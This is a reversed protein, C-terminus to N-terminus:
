TKMLGQTWQRIMAVTGEKANAFQVGYAQNAESWVVQGTVEIVENGDPSQVRMTVVGGKELAQDVNFSLGGASITSTQGILERDGVKVRIESNMKFRDHKRRSAGEPRRLAFWVLLPIMMLGALLGAGSAGGGKGPGNMIATSVLGCGGAGGASAPSREALFRPIYDPQYSAATSMVKAQSILDVSSIRASTSVRGELLVIHESEQMVLQKMQYGTLYPAERLALAAMGAVFPAAMSTGSMWDFTNGRVTSKIWEGPSGVHVTRAGYNSFYSLKDNSDISAVAINSPVDYNAPYMPTADNDKSYNGAASVVLVSNNYAYILAEHLARSYSPGGWSNNIVRAGNRVAYEIARVANATTGSGGGNLFKLPMIVVKSEELSSAFINLGAGVVIGAVHTGHNDDDAFNNSNSIFNWGNIDDVFGNGDDDRYPQGNAEAQNVWLAGTGGSSVPRFVHHNKDLGTDVVAVVIKGNGESLPTFLKWADAVGTANFSQSYSSQELEAGSPQLSQGMPAGMETVESKDFIYNPEVYEVDPDQKIAEINVAQEESSTAKLNVSIHYLNMAPFASKMVAKGQLKGSVAGAGASYGRYKVIYEGPVTKAEQAHASFAVMVVAISLVPLIRKM